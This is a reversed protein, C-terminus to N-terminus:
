GVHRYLLSGIMRLLVAPMRGFLKNHLGTGKQDSQVFAGLRLDYRFYKLVREEAGWGAKFRRLGLNEPETRGLCLSAYKKQSYWQIVEWMILNNARLQQYARDSAGYKYIANSGFHFYIAGAIPRQRYSALMVIGHDKSIVHEHIKKFFAYPQPPLGHEKRTM